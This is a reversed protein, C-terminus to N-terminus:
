FTPIPMYCLPMLLVSYEYENVFSIWVTACSPRALALFTMVEAESVQSRELWLEECNGLCWEEWYYIRCDRLGRCGELGWLGPVPVEEVELGDDM